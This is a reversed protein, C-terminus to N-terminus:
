NFFQIVSYATLFYQDSGSDFLAATFANIVSAKGTLIWGTISIISSFFSSILVSGTIIISSFLSSGIIILGWGGSISIISLILTRTVSSGAYKSDIGTM